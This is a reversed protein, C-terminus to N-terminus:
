TATGSKRHTTASSALASGARRAVRTSGTTARRQPSPDDESTRWHQRVQGGPLKEWSIEDVHRAGDPRATEQSLVMRGDRLGGDLQLLTGGNDVWTQHWRAGAYINFSEGENAGRAARWHEHLACGGLIARVTNTGAPKGDPLAVDWEGIWFDFQRHEAATCNCKARSM